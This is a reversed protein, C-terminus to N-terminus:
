TLPAPGRSAAKGPFTGVSPMSMILPTDTTTPVVNAYRESGDGWQDAANADVVVVEPEDDGAVAVSEHFKARQADVIAKYALVDAPDMPESEIRLEYWKGEKGPESLPGETYMHLRYAFPPLRKPACRTAYWKKYPKISRGKVRFMVLNAGPPQSGDNEDLLLMNSQSCPPVIRNGREGTWAGFVCTECSSPETLPLPQPKEGRKVIISKMEWLPQNPLPEVGNMSACVPKDHGAIFMSRPNTKLLVVGEVTGIYEGTDSHYFWGEKGTAGKATTMPQVIKLYPFSPNIDGHGYDDGWDLGALDEWRVVEGGETRIKINELANSMHEKAPVAPAALPLVEGLRIAEQRHWCDKGLEAAPCSCCAFPTGVGTITYFVAPNTRSRALYVGPEDTALLFRTPQDTKM